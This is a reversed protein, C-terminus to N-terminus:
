IQETLFHILVCELWKLCRQLPYNFFDLLTPGVYFRTNTETRKGIQSRRERPRKLNRGEYTQDFCVMHKKNRIASYAHFEKSFQICVPCYWCKHLLRTHQRDPMTPFIATISITLFHSIQQWPLWFTSCLQLTEMTHSFPPQLVTIQFLAIERNHYYIDSHLLTFTKDRQM